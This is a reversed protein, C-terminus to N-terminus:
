LSVSLLKIPKINSDSLMIKGYARNITGIIVAFGEKRVKSGVQPVQTVNGNYYFPVPISGVRLGGGIM